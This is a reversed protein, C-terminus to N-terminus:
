KLLALLFLASGFFLVIFEMKFRRGIQTPVVKTPCSELYRVGVGDGPVAPGFQMRSDQIMIEKGDETWFQLVPRDVPQIVGDGTQAAPSLSIVRAVTKKWGRTLSLRVCISLLPTALLLIALHTEM